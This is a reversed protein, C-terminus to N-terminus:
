GVYCCVAAQGQWSSQAATPPLPPEHPLDIGCADWYRLLEGALLGASNSLIKHGWGMVAWGVSEASLQLPPVHCSIVSWPEERSWRVCGCQCASCLGKSISQAWANPYLCSPNSGCLRWLLSWREQLWWSPLTICYASVDPTLYLALVSFKESSEHQLVHALVVGSPLTPTPIQALCLSIRMGVQMQARWYTWLYEPDTKHVWLSLDSLGKFYRRVRNSPSWVLSQSALM